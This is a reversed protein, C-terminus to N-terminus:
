LPALTVLRRLEGTMLLLDCCPCYAGKNIMNIMRLTNYIKPLPKQHQSLHPRTTHITVATQLMWRCMQIEDDDIHCKNIEVFNYVYSSPLAHIQGTARFIYYLTPTIIAYIRYITFKVNRRRKCKRFPKSAARKGCGLGIQISRICAAELAFNGRRLINTPGAM